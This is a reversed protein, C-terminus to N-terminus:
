NEFETACIKFIWLLAERNKLAETAERAERKMIAIEVVIGPVHPIGVTPSRQHVPARLSALSQACSGELQVFFGGM